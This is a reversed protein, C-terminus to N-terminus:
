VQPSPPPFLYLRAAAAAAFCSICPPILYFSGLFDGVNAKRLGQNEYLIIKPPDHLVRSWNFNFSDSEVRPVCVGRLSHRISGKTLDLTNRGLHPVSAHFM